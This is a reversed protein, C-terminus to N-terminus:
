LREFAEDVTKKVTTDTVTNVVSKDLYLLYEINGEPGRVPSYTIGRVGFGAACASMLTNKLVHLHVKRDKVVGKKGVNERGAEFQPKVLCVARMLQTSICAIAPFIMSLSIFSLDACVFDIEKDFDDAKLYRANVGEMCCVRPDIKLSPVLQDHGADVAYVYAAGHSLLCDTFGGSSAGLDACVLGNVDPSFVDFAKQLKLGGRSVFPIDSGTLDIECDEDFVQSAKTIVRGDVTVYGGEILGKARQRSPALQRNVLLLDLRVSM